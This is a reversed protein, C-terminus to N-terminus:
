VNNKPLITGFGFQTGLKFNGGEVTESILLSDWFKPFARWWVSRGIKTRLNNKALLEV